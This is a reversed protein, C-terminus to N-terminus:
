CSTTLGVMCALSLLQKQNPDAQQLIWGAQQQSLAAMLARIRVAALDLAVPLPVQRAAQPEPPVPGNQNGQGTAAGDTLSAAGAALAPAPAPAIVVAPPVAAEHGAPPAEIDAMRAAVPPAPTVPPPLATGQQIGARGATDAAIPPSPAAGHQDAGATSTGAETAPMPAANQQESAAPPPEPEMTPILGPVTGPQIIVTSGPAITAGTCCTYLHCIHGQCILATDVSLLCSCLGTSQQM